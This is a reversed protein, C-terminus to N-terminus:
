VKNKKYKQLVHKWFFYLISMVLIWTIFDKLFTQWKVKKDQRVPVPGSSGNSAAKNLLDKDSQSLNVTQQMINDASDLIHPPIINDIIAELVNVRFSNLMAATFLGSMTGITLVGEELLFSFM